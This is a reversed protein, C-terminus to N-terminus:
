NIDTVLTYNKNSFPPTDLRKNKIEVAYPRVRKPGGRADCTSFDCYPKYPRVNKVREYSLDVTKRLRSQWLTPALTEEKLKCYGGNEM